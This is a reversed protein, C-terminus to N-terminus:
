FGCLLNHVPIFKIIDYKKSCPFHAIGCCLATSEQRSSLHGLRAGDKLRGSFVPICLLPGKREGGKRKGGKREDGRAAKEKAAKEKTAKREGGKREGSKREDGKKRRRKKRRRKKRRREKAAKEKAAKIRYYQRAKM